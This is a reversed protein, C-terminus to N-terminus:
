PLTPTCQTYSLFAPTPPVALRDTSYNGTGAVFASGYATSTCNSTFGGPVTGSGTTMPYTSVTLPPAIYYNQTLSEMAGVVGSCEYIIADRIAAVGGFVGIVLLTLLMIWEFTLIGEDECWLRKMM